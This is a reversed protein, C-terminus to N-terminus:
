KDDPGVERVWAWETRRIVRSALTESIGMERSISAGSRGASAMRRILRVRDADLKKPFAPKTRGKIVCDRCNDLNTGLFLHAPNVCKPTDCSHCVFKGDNIPGVLAAYSARHTSTNKHGNWYCGYPGSGRSAGQWLWCGGVPKVRGWFRQPLRSDGFQISDADAMGVRRRHSHHTTLPAAPAILM